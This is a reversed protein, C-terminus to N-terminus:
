SESTGFRFRVENFTLERRKEVVLQPQLQTFLFGENRMGTIFPGVEEPIRHMRELGVVFVVLPSVTTDVSAYAQAYRRRHNMSVARRIAITMARTGEQLSGM